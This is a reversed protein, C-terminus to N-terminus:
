KPPAPILTLPVEHGARHHRTSTDISLRGELADKEVSSQRLELTKVLWYVSFAIVGLLEAIFVFESIKKAEAALEKSPLSYITNLILAILPSAVMAFGIVRYWRKYRAIIKHRDPLGIPMLCLTKDACSVCVVALCVFFLIASTGHVHSLLSHWSGSEENCSWRMPFLAVATVMAGAINLVINEFKSFGKYAYLLAGIM